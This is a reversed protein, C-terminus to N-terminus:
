TTVPTWLIKRAKDQNFKQTQLVDHADHIQLNTRAVASATPHVRQHNNEFYEAMEKAEIWNGCVALLLDKGRHCLIEPSTQERDWIEFLIGGDEELCERIYIDM